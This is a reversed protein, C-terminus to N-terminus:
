PNGAPERDRTGKKIEATGEPWALGAEPGSLVLKVAVTVEVLFNTGPGQHSSQRVLIKM